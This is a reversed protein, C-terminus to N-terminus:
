ALMRRLNLPAIFNAGTSAGPVSRADSHKVVHELTIGIM